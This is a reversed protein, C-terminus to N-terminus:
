GAGAGEARAVVVALVAGAGAKRLTRAAESSTAGTTLIDDVLIARRGGLDYGARISFAGRVNAFRQRPTLGPQPRTNRRRCLVGMIPLGLRRAVARAVAHPSNTGRMARRAWYMPVPVVCHAAFSRLEGAFRDALVAGLAGALPEGSPRKMRLVAERRRDCYPGLSVAGEFHLKRDRCRQCAKPHYGGGGAFSREIGESSPMAADGSAPLGRTRGVLGAGCRPCARWNRDDLAERCGVCLSCANDEVPSDNGCLLCQPPLLLDIGAYVWRRVARGIVGTVLGNGIM